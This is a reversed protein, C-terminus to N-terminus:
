CQEESAAARYAPDCLLLMQQTVGVLSCLELHMYFLLTVEVLDLSKPSQSLILTRQKAEKMLPVLRDMLQWKTSVGVVECEEEEEPRTHHLLYPHNCVQAPRLFDGSLASIGHFCTRQLGQSLELFISSACSFLRQSTQTCVHMGFMSSFVNLYLIHIPVQPQSCFGM